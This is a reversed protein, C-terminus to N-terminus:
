FGTNTGAPAWAHPPSVMVLLECHIYPLIKVPGPAGGRHVLLNLPCIRMQGHLAPLDLEVGLLLTAVVVVIVVVVIAVVLMVVVVVMVAVTVVVAGLAINWNKTSACGTVMAPM